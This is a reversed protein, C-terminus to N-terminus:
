RVLPLVRSLIARALPAAVQGGVGGYESVVAVAVEPDNAPAFSIFWAHNRREGGVDVEATGTKGAVRIGSIQAGVGTGGQVVSEMLETMTRATKRSVVREGDKPARRTIRPEMRMGDNAITAAVTAMQLPTAVVQAQGISGWMLDGEDEPRPFSPRAAGLPMSPERNFGFLEAYDTLRKAGLREAIQAFATNVSNQLASAFSLTGFAGSEFNRVGKYEAPGSLQTTPKFKGSDLAAAATVVKQASGPPYLGSLARNFPEIGAVGVYNQPGFPSSAVAALIDGTKPALVVAGGTTSGYAAEAAQQVRIDLTTRLPDAAEGREAGLKRLTKGKRDVVVLTTKPRGALREEFAAEIGSDGILDGVEHEPHEQRTQKRVVGIHGITTGAAAGFPYRRDEPGGVALKRGDRDLISARRPWKRLLALRRAGKVGPLLLSRDWDIAWRDEDEVFVVPLEGSLGEGPEIGEALYQIVYDFSEIGDGSDGEPPVVDDAHLEYGETAAEGVVRGIASALRDATWRERDEPGLLEAMADHDEAQWAEIFALHTEYASVVDKPSEGLVEAPTCAALLALACLM